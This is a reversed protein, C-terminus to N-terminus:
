RMYVRTYAAILANGSSDGGVNNTSIVEVFTNRTKYDILPRLAQANWDLTTRTGNPVTVHILGAEFDFEVKIRGSLVTEGFSVGAGGIVITGVGGPNFREIRISGKGWVM